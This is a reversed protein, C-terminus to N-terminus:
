LLKSGNYVNTILVPKTEEIIKRFLKNTFDNKDSNMHNISDNKEHLHLLNLQQQEIYFIEMKNACKINLILIGDTLYEKYYEFDKLIDLDRILADWNNKIVSSNLEISIKNNEGNGSPLLSISINDTSAPNLVDLSTLDNNKSSNNNDNVIVCQAQDFGDTDSVYRQLSKMFSSRMLYRDEFDDNVEYMNYISFSTKNSFCDKFFIECEDNFIEDQTVLDMPFIRNFILKNAADGRVVIEKDMYNIKLNAGIKRSIRAFNRVKCGSLEDISNELERRHKQEQEMRDFTSNYAHELDSVQEGRIRLKESLIKYDNKKLNELNQKLDQNNQLNKLTKQLIVLDDQLKLKLGNKIEIQELLERKKHELRDYNVNLREDRERLLANIPENETIKFNEFRHTLDGRLKSIKDLNELQLAKLANKRKLLLENLEESQTNLECEQLKELKYVRLREQSEEIINRKYDNFKEFFENEMNQLKIDNELKMNELKLENNLVLSNKKKHLDQIKLDIADIDSRLKNILTAKKNITYKLNPITEKQLVEIEEDIENITKKYISMNKLLKRQKNTMEEIVQPDSYFSIKQTSRGSPGLSLKRNFKAIHDNEATVQQNNNNSNSNNNNNDNNSHYGFSLTTRRHLPKYSILNDDTTATNGNVISHFMTTHRRTNNNTTVAPSNEISATSQVSHLKPIKSREQKLFVTINNRKLPLINTYTNNKTNLLQPIKSSSTVTNSRHHKQQQENQTKNM